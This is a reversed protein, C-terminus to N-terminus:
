KHIKNDQLVMIDTWNDGEFLHDGMQILIVKNCPKNQGYWHNYTGYLIRKSGLVGKFEIDDPIDKLFEKLKGVTINFTEKGKSM